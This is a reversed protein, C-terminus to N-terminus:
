NTKTHKNGLTSQTYIIRNIHTHINTHSPTGSAYPKGINHTKMGVTVRTHPFLNLTDRTNGGRRFVNGQFYVGHLDVQSGLGPTHWVVRDGVCVDLGRLNRYM